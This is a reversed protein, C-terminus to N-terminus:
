RIVKKVIAILKERVFPKVIWGTAGVEKAKEKKIAQSETTLLLIPVTSYKENARVNKIFDIGDLNPMNLDTIILDVPRSTNLKYTADEGDFSKIVTYGANELTMEVLDRISESDDVILVTKSM